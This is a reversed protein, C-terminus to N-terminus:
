PAAAADNRAAASSRSRCSGSTRAARAPGPARRPRAPLVAASAAPRSCSDRRSSAAARPRRWRQRFSRTPTTAPWICASTSRGPRRSAGAGARLRLHGPARRHDAVMGAASAGAATTAAARRDRAGARRTGPTGGHGGRHQHGSRRARARRRAPRPRVGMARAPRRAQADTAAPRARARIASLDNTDARLRVQCGPRLAAATPTLTPSDACTRSSTRRSPSCRRSSRRRAPKPRRSRGRLRPRAGRHRHLRPAGTRWPRDVYTAAAAPFLATLDVRPLLVDSDRAHAAFAVRLVNCLFRRPPRHRAAHQARRHVAAGVVPQGGPRTSRRAPRQRDTAARLSVSRPAPPARFALTALRDRRPVGRMGLLALALHWPAPLPRTKLRFVGPQELHLRRRDCLAREAHEGHVTRLLALTQRYAGLLLHQGNDLARAARRRRPARPRRSAQAPEFLTVPAGPRPSRSRPPWARGAAASSPSAAPHEAM